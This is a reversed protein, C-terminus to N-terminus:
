TKDRHKHKHERIFWAKVANVVSLTFPKLREVVTPWLQSINLTVCHQRKLVSSRCPVINATVLKNYFTYLRKIKRRFELRLYHPPACIDDERIIKQKSLCKM